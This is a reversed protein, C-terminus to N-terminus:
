VTVDDGAPPVPVPVPVGIVTVPKVFPVSYVKVTTAVFTTPLEEADTAEFATVGAVTGSAGVFTVATAPLVWAVTLKVAGEDV